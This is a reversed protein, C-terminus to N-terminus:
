PRGGDVDALLREYLALLRAADIEWAYRAHAARLCRARLGAREGPPLSLLSRAARAVAAPDAPDCVAGLPGDPDGLVIRRMPPFDSAVVPVGAGLAEYLKNPTSLRHNLTTPQIPVAVLDAGHIWIPLDEPPVAALVRLRGGLAPDDALRRLEGELPGRGLFVAHVDSLEPLRLADAVTEFGRHSVFAGHVLLLPELPGVGVARRLPEDGDPGPEWRSICNRVVVVRDRMDLAPGLVEALDDNVTILAAAEAALSQELRRFAARARAPRTANSGAEVFIEHSDYVIPTTRGNTGSAHAMAIAPPLARLDHAHYVDGEPAAAVVGATWPAVGFRWQLRWEVVRWASRLGPVLRVAAVVVALALGVVFVFPALLLALVIGGALSAIGRPGGHLSRRASRLLTRALAAPQRAQLLWGFPGTAIPVRVIEFAGLREREVPVGYPETTRAMVTVEHGAAALTNAERQVRADTKVDNLVFM